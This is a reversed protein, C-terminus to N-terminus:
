LYKSLEKYLRNLNNKIVEMLGIASNEFEEFKYATWKVKHIEIGPDADNLTRTHVNITQPGRIEQIDNPSKKFRLKAGREITISRLGREGIRKGIGKYHVVISAFNSETQPILDNHKNENVLKNLKYLWEHNNYHQYEIITNYLPNNNNKLNPFWKEMKREFTEKNMSKPAIPYYVKKPKKSCYIVTEKALYDLIVRCHNLYDFIDIQLSADLEMNKLSFYYKKELLIYEKEIRQLLSEISEKRKM